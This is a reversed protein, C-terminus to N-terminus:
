GINLIRVWLYPINEWKNLDDKIQKVQIKYNESINHIDLNVVSHKTRARVIKFPITKETESKVNM